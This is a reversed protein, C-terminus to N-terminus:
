LSVHKLFVPEFGHVAIGSVDLWLGAAPRIAQPPLPLLVQLLTHAQLHSLCDEQFLHGGRRPGAAADASATAHYYAGVWSQDASALSYVPPVHDHIFAHRFRTYPGYSQFWHHCLCPFFWAVWMRPRGFFLPMTTLPQTGLRMSRWWDKQARHASLLQHCHGSCCDRIILFLFLDLM